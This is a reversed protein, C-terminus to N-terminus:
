TDVARETRVAYPLGILVRNPARPSTFVWVEADGCAELQRGAHVCDGAAPVGGAAHASM